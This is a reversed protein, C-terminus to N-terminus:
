SYLFVSRNKYFSLFFFATFLLKNLTLTVCAATAFVEKHYTERKLQSSEKVRFKHNTITTIFDILSAMQCLRYEACVVTFLLLSYLAICM